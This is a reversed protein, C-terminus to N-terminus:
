DFHPAMSEAYQRNIGCQEALIVIIVFQQEDSSPAQIGRYFLEISEVRVELYRQHVVRKLIKALVFALINPRTQNVM